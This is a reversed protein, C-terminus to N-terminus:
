RGKRNLIEDAIEDPTRADVGPDKSLCRDIEDRRVRLQRGAMHRPLLGCKVWARLTSPHVGAYKAGAVVTMFGDSAPSPREALLARMEIRVVERVAPVLKAVILDEVSM